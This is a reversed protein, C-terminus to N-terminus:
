LIVILDDEGTLDITPSAKRRKIARSQPDSFRKSAFVCDPLPPCMSVIRLYETLDQQMSEAMEGAARPGNARFAHKLRQMRKNIAANDLGFRLNSSRCDLAVDNLHEM